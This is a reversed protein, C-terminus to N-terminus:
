KGSIVTKGLPKLRRDGRDRDAMGVAGGTVKAIHSYGAPPPLTKPSFFEKSL